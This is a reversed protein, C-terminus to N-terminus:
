KILIMKKTEFFNDTKLSYFYIGSSLNNANFEVEYSGSNQKENVLTVVENGIADYIKLTAFQSQPLSYSIKTSPNFPNPYNQNLSYASPLVESIQRIGIIEALLRSWVSQGSIGAFFKNNIISLSNISHSPNFGENKQIWDTGNNTSLYFGSYNGAFINTGSVVIEEVYYVRLGTKM